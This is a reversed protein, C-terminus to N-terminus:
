ASTAGDHSRAHASTGRRRAASPVEPTSPAANELGLLLAQPPYPNILAHMGTMGLGKYPGTCSWREARTSRACSFMGAGHNPPLGFVDWRGRAGLESYMYANASM